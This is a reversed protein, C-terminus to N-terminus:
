RGAAKVCNKMLMAVTMLGVGGPVPTIYGAIEKVKEYDVDGTLGKETRNMGVDIVIAGRKVMEEKVFNAKGIAAVLIDAKKTIEPLDVTRSHCITITCHKRMLLMSIPKGVINSRGIIVANKGKLEVNTSNIMEMIGAPTCPYFMPEQGLFLKGMNIPHLGDVDKKPEIASIIASEDIHKPLPLQVLMGNVSKDINLEDLKNLLEQQTTDGRMRIVESQLGIEKSRKEKSAVYTMSAPDDGVLVVALKSSIARKEIEEKLGSLIGASIERGNIVKAMNDVDKGCASNQRYTERSVNM